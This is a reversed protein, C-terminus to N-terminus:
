TFQSVLEPHFCACRFFYCQEQARSTETNYCGFHKFFEDDGELCKGGPKWFGTLCVRPLRPGSSFGFSVKKFISKIILNTPNIIFGNLSDEVTQLTMELIKGALLGFIDGGACKEQPTPM